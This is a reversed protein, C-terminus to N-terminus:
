LPKEIDEDEVVIEVNESYYKVAEYIRKKERKGLRRYMRIMEQEVLSLKEERELGWFLYNPTTGLFRCIRGIHKLYSTSGYYKWKAIGGSPIGLFRALEAEKKGQVRILEVIRRVVPDDTMDDDNIEM